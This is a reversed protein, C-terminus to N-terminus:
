KQVGDHVRQVGFQVGFIHCGQNFTYENINPANENIM